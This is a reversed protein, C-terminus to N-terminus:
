LGKIKVKFMPKGNKLMSIVTHFKRTSKNLKLRTVAVDVGINTNQLWLFIKNNYAVQKRGKPYKILYQEIDKM